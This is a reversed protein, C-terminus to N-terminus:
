YREGNPSVDSEREYYIKEEGANRKKGKAVAEEKNTFKYDNVIVYEGKEYDKEDALFNAYFFNNDIGTPNNEVGKRLLAEAKKSDGFGIPWGPM